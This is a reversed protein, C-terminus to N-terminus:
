KWAQSQALRYFETLQEFTFSKGRVARMPPPSYDVAGCAEALEVVLDRVTPQTPPVKDKVMEVHYQRIDPPSFKFKLNLVPTADSLTDRVEEDDFISGVNSLHTIKDFVTYTFEHKMFAGAIMSFDLQLNLTTTADRMRLFISRRTLQNGILEVNFDYVLRNLQFDRMQEETIAKVRQWTVELEREISVAGVLTRALKRIWVAVSAVLVLSHIRLGPTGKVDDGWLVLSDFGLAPVVCVMNIGMSILLDREHHTFRDEPITAIDPLRKNNISRNDINEEYKNSLFDRIFEPTIAPNKSYYWLGPPIGEASQPIERIVNIRPVYFKVPPIQNMM